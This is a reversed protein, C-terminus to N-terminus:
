AHAEVRNSTNSYSQRRRRSGLDAYLRAVDVFTTAPVPHDVVAHRFLKRALSKREFIPVQHKLALQRMDQAWRESGKAIVTPATMEGRVYRLAVAFHTPNTILVDADAVRSLSKSQKLNERQLQRIKSRILPDGERRKVEDKMDRRSMRMQKSFQMRAIVLDILAFVLLALLLRFLLQTAVGALWTLQGDISQASVNILERWRASFTIYVVTILVVLKFVSKITEILLRKSFVRKFGAVPNLREFKPKLPTFSFVPGTQVINGMIAAVVGACLPFMLVTWLTTMASKFADLGAHDNTAFTGAASLLVESSHGITRWSQEAAIMLVAVFAAIMVFSNVDISKAVQGHKRAESLKFQSAPETREHESSMSESM